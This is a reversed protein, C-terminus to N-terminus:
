GRTGEVIGLEGFREAQQEVLNGGLGSLHGVRVKGGCHFRAESIILEELEDDAGHDALRSPLVFRKAKSTSL